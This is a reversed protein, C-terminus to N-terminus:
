AMSSRCLIGMFVLLRTGADLMDGLTPWQEKAMRRVPPRYALDKLGASEFAADYKEISMAEPNTLLVTVVERPKDRMWDAIEGLYDVLPGQDLEWCFSHCLEVNGNKNRTQAQLFRVGYDLQETVSIYQNHTISTGVFASDHAGVFTIDSYRRSCLEEHGNCVAAAAAAATTTSPSTDRAVAAVASATTAGTICGVFNLLHMLPAFASSAAHPSAANCSASIASLAEKLLPVM